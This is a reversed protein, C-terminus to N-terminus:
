CDVPKVDTKFDLWMREFEEQLGEILDIDTTIITNDYNVTLAQLCWNQSGVMIIGQKPFKIADPSVKAVSDTEVTDILCLKHHMISDSSVKYRIPIGKRMMKELNQNNDFM